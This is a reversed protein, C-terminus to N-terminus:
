FSTLASNGRREALTDDRRPWPSDSSLHGYMNIPFAAFVGYARPPHGLDTRRCSSVIEWRRQLIGAEYRFGRYACPLKEGRRISMDKAVQLQQSSIPDVANTAKAPSGRSM